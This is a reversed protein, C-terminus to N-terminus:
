CPLDVVAVTMMLGTPPNEDTTPKDALLPTGDPTWTLKVGLGIPGPLEVIYRFTADDAFVPVKLKWIRPELPLKFWAVVKVRM